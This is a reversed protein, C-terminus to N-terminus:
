QRARDEPSKFRISSHRWRPVLMELRTLNANMRPVAGNVTVEVGGGLSISM